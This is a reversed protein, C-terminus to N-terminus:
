KKTEWAAEGRLAGALLLACLGLTLVTKMM